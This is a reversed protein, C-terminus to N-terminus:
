RAALRLNLAEKMPVYSDFARRSVTQCDSPTSPSRVYRLTWIRDASGSIFYPRGFCRPAGLARLELGARRLALRRSLALHVCARQRTNSAPSPVFSTDCRFVRSRTSSDCASRSRPRQTRGGPGVFHGVHRLACRQFALVRSITPHSPRCPPASPEWRRLVAETLDTGM